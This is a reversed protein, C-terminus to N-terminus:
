QTNTGLYADPDPPEFVSVNAVALEEDGDLISCAFMGLGNDGM